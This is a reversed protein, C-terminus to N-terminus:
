AGRQVAVDGKQAVPQARRELAGLALRTEAVVHLLGIAELKRAEPEAGPLQMGQGGRLLQEVAGTGADEGCRDCRQLPADIGQERLM